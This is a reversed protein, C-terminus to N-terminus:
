CAPTGLSESTKQFSIFKLHKRNPRLRQRNLADGLHQASKEGGPHKRSYGSFLRGSESLERVHRRVRNLLFQNTQSVVRTLSQGRSQRHPLQPDQGWECKKQQRQQSEASEGAWVEVTQHAFSRLAGYRQGPALIFSSALFDGSM